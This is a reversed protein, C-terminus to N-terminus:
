TYTDVNQNPSNAINVTATQGTEAATTTGSIAFGQTAKTANIINNSAITSIAVSPATTDIQLTGAPNYNTAGTLNANNAAMDSVTAGNLNFSSVVLDPTNQGAAVTYSFTLATSGSSAADTATASDNRRP